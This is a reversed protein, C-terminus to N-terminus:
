SPNQEHSSQGIKEIDNLVRALILKLGERLLWSKTCGLTRNIIEMKRLTEDDVYTGVLTRKTTSM